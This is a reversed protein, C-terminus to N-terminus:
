AKSWKTFAGDQFLPRAAQYQMAERIWEAANEDIATAWLRGDLLVLNDRATFRSGAPAVSPRPREPRQTREIEPPPPPLRHRPPPAPAAVERDFMGPVM